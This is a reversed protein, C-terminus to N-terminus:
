MVEAMTHLASVPNLTCVSHTPPFFYLSIFDPLSSPCSIGPSELCASMFVFGMM